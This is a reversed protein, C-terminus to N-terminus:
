RAAERAARRHGQLSAAPEGIAAPLSTTTLALVM